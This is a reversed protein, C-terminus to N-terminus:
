LPFSMNAIINYGNYELLFISWKHWVHNSGMKEMTKNHYLGYFVCVWLSVLHDYNSNKNQINTTRVM